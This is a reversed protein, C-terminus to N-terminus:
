SPGGEALAAPRMVHEELFDRYTAESKSAKVYATLYAEDVPYLSELSCPWAGRPAHVVADVLYGPISAGGWRGNSNSCVNQDVLALM